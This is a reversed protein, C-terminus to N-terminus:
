PLRPVRQQETKEPHRRRHGGPRTVMVLEIALQVIARVPAAGAGRAHDHRELRAPIRGAVDPFHAPPQSAAEAEDVALDHFKRVPQQLAEGVRGRDFADM